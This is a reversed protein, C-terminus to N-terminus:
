VKYKKTQNWCKTVYGKLIQYVIIVTDLGILIAALIRMADVSDAGYQNVLNSHSENIGVFLQLFRTMMMSSFIICQIPGYLKGFIKRMIFTICCYDFLVQVYGMGIVSSLSNNSIGVVVSNLMIIFRALYNQAEHLFILM